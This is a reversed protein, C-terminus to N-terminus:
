ASTVRRPTPGSDNRRELGASIVFLLCSALKQLAVPPPSPAVQRPSGAPHARWSVRAALKLVQQRQKWELVACRFSLCVCAWRRVREVVRHTHIRMISSRLAGGEGAQGASAREPAFSSLRSATACLSPELRRSLHELRVFLPGFSNPARTWRPGQLPASSRRSVRACAVSSRLSPALGGAWGVM